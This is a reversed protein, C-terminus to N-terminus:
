WRSKKKGFPEGDFDCKNWRKIDGGCLKWLRANLAEVRQQEQRKKESSSPSKPKFIGAGTDGGGPNNVNAGFLGGPQISPKGPTMPRQVRGKRPSPSFLGSAASPAFPSDEALPKDTFSNAPPTINPARRLADRSSEAREPGNPQRQRQKRASKSPSKRPSPPYEAEMDSESESSLPEDMTLEGLPVPTGHPRRPTAAKPTHAKAPSRLEDNEQNADALSSEDSVLKARDDRAQFTSIDGFVDDTGTQRVFPQSPAAHQRRRTPAGGPSGESRRSAATGKQRATAGLKRRRAPAAPEAAFDKIEVKEEVKELEDEERGRNQAESVAEKLPRPIVAHCSTMLEARRTFTAFDEQMLSGADSNLASDPNPQILLCGIVVLIDRLTLKADWDRKLTEVCVGGTQPDVNPHFIPTRFHATPPQSPYTRPITLHLKFVGAAFPTHTPGALLIDLQTLDDNDAAPAFLYNPPLPQSHLAGHDAALRCLARSNM